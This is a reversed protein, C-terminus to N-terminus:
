VIRTDVFRAPAAAGYQYGKSRKRHQRAALIDSKITEWETKASHYCGNEITLIGNLLEEMDKIMATISGKGGDNETTPNIYSGQPMLLCDLRNIRNILRGREKMCASLERSNKQNLGTQIQETLTKYEVLLDAKEKLGSRYNPQTVM